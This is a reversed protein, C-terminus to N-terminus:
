ARSDISSSPSPPNICELEDANANRQLGEVYSVVGVRQVHCFLLGKRTEDLPVRSALVQLESPRYPVLRRHLGPCAAVRELLDSLCQPALSLCCLLLPLALPVDLKSSMLAPSPSLMISVGRTDLTTNISVTPPYRLLEGTGRVVEDGRTEATGLERERGGERSEAVGAGAGLIGGDTDLWLIPM